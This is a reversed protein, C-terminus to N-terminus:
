LWLLKPVSGTRGCVVALQGFESALVRMRQEDARLVLYSPEVPWVDGDALNSSPLFYWGLAKIRKLLREQALRNIDESLLVAPNYATVIGWCMGTTEGPEDDSAPWQAALRLLFADFAPTPVGIRLAFSAEPVTVRYTTACFAAELEALSM